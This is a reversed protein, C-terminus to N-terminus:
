WRWGLGEGFGARHRRIRRAAGLPRSCPRVLAGMVSGPPGGGDSRNRDNEGAAGVASESKGHSMLRRHTNILFTARARNPLRVM